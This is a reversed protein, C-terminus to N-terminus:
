SITKLSIKTSEIENQIDYIRKEFMEIQIVREEILRKKIHLMMENQQEIPFNLFAKFMGNAVSIHEDQIKMNSLPSSLNLISKDENLPMTVPEEMSLPNVYNEM